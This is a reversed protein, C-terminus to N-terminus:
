GLLQRIASYVVVAACNAVNLSNKVGFVPLRALVDCAELADQTIGLAENGFVFAVPFQFDIDWINAAGEVTEIALVQFGSTKLSLVADISTATHSNKVLHDCGRATKQLKPHPPCATYGCSIVQQIRCVEALRFINGVNYASRLNDLILTIPHSVTASRRDGTEVRFKDSV